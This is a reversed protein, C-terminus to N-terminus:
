KIVHMGFGSGNECRALTNLGLWLGGV